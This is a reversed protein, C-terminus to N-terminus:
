PAAVHSPHLRHVAGPKIWAPGIHVRALVPASSKKGKVVITVRPSLVGDTHVNHVNM